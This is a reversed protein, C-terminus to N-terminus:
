SSISSASLSVFTFRRSTAHLPPCPCGCTSKCGIMDDGAHSCRTQHVYKTGGCWWWCVVVVVYYPAMAHTGNARLTEAGGPRTLAAAGPVPARAALVRASLPTRGHWHADDSAGRPPAPRPLRPVSTLWAAAAAM